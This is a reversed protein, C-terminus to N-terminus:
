GRVGKDRPQTSVGSACGLTELCLDLRRASLRVSCSLLPYRSEPQNARWGKAMHKERHFETEQERRRALM